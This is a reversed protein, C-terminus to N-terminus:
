NVRAFNIKVDVRQDAARLLGAYEQFSQGMFRPQQNEAQQDFLFLRYRLDFFYEAQTLRRNRLLESPEAGITQHLRRRSPLFM